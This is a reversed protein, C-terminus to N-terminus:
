ESYLGINDRYEDLYVKDTFFDYRPYHYTQYKSHMRHGKPLIEYDESSVIDFSYKPYGNRLLYFYFKVRRFGGKIIKDRNTEGYNKERYCGRHFCETVLAIDAAKGAVGLFRKNHIEVKRELLKLIIENTLTQKAMSRVMKM